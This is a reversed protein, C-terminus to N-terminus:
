AEYRGGIGEVVNGVALLQRTRRWCGRRCARGCSCGRGGAPSRGRRGAVLVVAVVLVAAVLTVLAAFGNAAVALEVASHLLVTVLALTVAVAALGTTIYTGLEEM